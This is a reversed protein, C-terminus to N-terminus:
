AKQTKLPQHLAVGFCRSRSQKLERITRRIELLKLHHRVVVEPGVVALDHSPSKLLLVLFASVAVLM